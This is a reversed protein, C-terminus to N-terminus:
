LAEESIETNKKQFSDLFNGLKYKLTFEITSFQYRFFHKVNCVKSIGIVIILLIAFNLIILIILLYLNIGEYYDM